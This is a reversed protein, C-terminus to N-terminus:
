KRVGRFVLMTAIPPFPLSVRLRKFDRPSSKLRTFLDSMMEPYRAFGDITRSEDAPVQEPMELMPMLGRQSEHLQASDAGPLQQHLQAKFEHTAVLDRHVFIEHVALEVPTGLTM